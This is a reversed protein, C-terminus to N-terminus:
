ANPNAFAVVRGDTQRQVDIRVGYAARLLEEDLARAPEACRLLRGAGLLAIRDAFAGALNLDHLVVAAACGEAAFARLMRLTEFAHRVDLHSTPEDLLLTRARQALALAIWVRQREGSSLAHFPREAHGALETRELAEGVARDDEPNSSWRWWPRYPLRGSSVVERVTVGDLMPGDASLFAIEQARARPSLERLNRGEVVIEGQAPPHLGAMARLLTTKGVGNPGVIALLEGPHLAFSIERLFVCEGFALAVNRVDIM